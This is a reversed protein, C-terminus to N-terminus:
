TRIQNGVAVGTLPSPDQNHRSVRQTRNAALTSQVEEFLAEEIIARHEGPYSAGKHTVEGRYIRNQLMAYLAGRSFRQGGYSSGDAAMRAKSVMGAADLEAKLDRVSKLEVYGRFIV